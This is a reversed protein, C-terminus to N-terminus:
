DGGATIESTLLGSRPDARLNKKRFHFLVVTSRIHNSAPTVNVFDQSTTTTFVPAPHRPLEIFSSTFRM